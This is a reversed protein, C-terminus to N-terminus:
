KLEGPIKIEAYHTVHVFHEPGDVWTNRDNLQAVWARGGAYILFDKHKEVRMLPHYKKWDIM